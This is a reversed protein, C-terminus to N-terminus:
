GIVLATPVDIRRNDFGRIEVSSITSVDEPNVTFRTVTGTLWKIRDSSKLVLRRLVREYGDRSLFFCQMNEAKPHRKGM